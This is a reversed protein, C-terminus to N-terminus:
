SSYHKWTKNLDYLLRCITASMSRSMVKLQAPNLPPKKFRMAPLVVEVVPYHFQRHDRIVLLGAYPYKERIIQKAEAEIEPLVAFCFYHVPYRYLKEKIDRHIQKREDRLLDTISTKIETEILLNSPTAALVDARDGKGHSKLMASVEISVLPYQKVFRWHSAIVSRIYEAKYNKM